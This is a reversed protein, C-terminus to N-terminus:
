EGDWSTAASDMKEELRKKDPDPLLRYQVTFGSVSLVLWGFLVAYGFFKGHNALADPLSAAGGATVMAVCLLGFVVLGAGGMATAILMVLIRLKKFLLVVTGGAVCAVFLIAPNPELHTIATSIAGALFGGLLAGIMFLGMLYFVTSVVAGVVGGIIGSLLAVWIHQSASFGINSALVCGLIAGLLIRVKSIFYGFFCLTLGLLINLGMMLAFANQASSSTNM